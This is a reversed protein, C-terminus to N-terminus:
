FQANLFPKWFHYTPYFHVVPPAFIFWLYRGHFYIYVDNLSSENHIHLSFRMYVYALKM